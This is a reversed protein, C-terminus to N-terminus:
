ICSSLPHLSLSPGLLSMILFSPTLIARAPRASPTFPRAVRTKGERERGPAGLLTIALATDPFPLFSTHTLLLTM